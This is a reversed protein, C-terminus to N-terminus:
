NEAMSISILPIPDPSDIDLLEGICLRHPGDSEADSLVEEVSKDKWGPCATNGYMRKFAGLIRQQVNLSTVIVSIDLMCVKGAKDLRQM